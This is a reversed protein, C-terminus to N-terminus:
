VYRVGFDHSSRGLDSVNRFRPFNRLCNLSTNIALELVENRNELLKGVIKDM